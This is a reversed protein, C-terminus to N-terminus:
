AIEVGGRGWIPLPASAPAESGARTPREVLGLVLALALLAAVVFVSSARDALKSYGTGIAALAAATSARSFGKHLLRIRKSTRCRGWDPHLAALGVAAGVGYGACALLGQWSHWTTNHPKGLMNKQEYIIYWGGMALAFSAIMTNGHLITNARGGRRKVVIGSGAAVVFALSM